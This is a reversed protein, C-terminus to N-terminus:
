FAKLLGVCVALIVLSIWTAPRFAIEALRDSFSPEDPVASFNLHGSNHAQNTRQAAIYSPSARTFEDASTM